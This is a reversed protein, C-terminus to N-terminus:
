GGPSWSFPSGGITETIIADVLEPIETKRSDQHIFEIRDLFGNEKATKRAVEIIPGSEIAYVKEAGAQLAFFALIGTGTGIDVIRDGEHVTEFIAQKYQILLVSNSTTLQTFHIYFLPYAKKCFM